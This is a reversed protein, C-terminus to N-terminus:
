VWVVSLVEPVNPETSRVCDAHQQVFRLAGRLLLARLCGRREDMEKAPLPVFHVEIALQDASHM